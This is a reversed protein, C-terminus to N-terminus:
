SFNNVSIAKQLIQQMTSLHESQICSLETYWAKCRIKHMQWVEVPTDNLLVKNDPGDSYGSRGVIMFLNLVEATTM